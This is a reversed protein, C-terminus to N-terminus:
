KKDENPSEWEELVFQLALEDWPWYIAQFGGTSHVYPPIKGNEYDKVVNLLLNRATNQLREISPIEQGIGDEKGWKWKVLEMVKKVEHFNFNTIIKEIRSTNFLARM